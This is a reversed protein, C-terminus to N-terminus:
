VDGGLYIKHNSNSTKLLYLFGSLLMRKRFETLKHRVWNSCIRPSYKMFEWSVLRNSINLLRTFYLRRPKLAESIGQALSLERSRCNITPIIFSHAFHFEEKDSRILLKWELYSKEDKVERRLPLALDATSTDIFLLHLTRIGLPHTM